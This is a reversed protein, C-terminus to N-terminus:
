RRACGCSMCTSRASKSSCRTAGGRQRAFQSRSFSREPHGALFRLLKFEALGMKIPRDGIAVEHRAPDIRLPGYEIAEAPKRLAGGVFCPECARSSARANSFPKVVYDDAGADLRDGPRKRRGQRHAHNV